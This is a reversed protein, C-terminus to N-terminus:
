ISLERMLHDAYSVALKATASEGPARGTAIFGHMFAIAALERITIGDTGPTRTVIPDFKHTM